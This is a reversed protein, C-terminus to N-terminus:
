AAKKVKKPTPNLVKEPERAAQKILDGADADGIYRAVIASDQAIDDDDKNYDCRIALTGMLPLAQEVFTPEDHYDAFLRDLADQRLTRKVVPKFLTPSIGPIESLKAVIQAKLEDTLDAADIEFKTETAILDGLGASEIEDVTDNSMGYVGFSKARLQCSGTQQGDTGVFNDPRLKAGCGTRRFEASIAADLQDKMQTEIALMVARMRRFAKYDRLGKIAVERVDKKRGSGKNTKANTTDFFNVVNATKPAAKAMPNIEM